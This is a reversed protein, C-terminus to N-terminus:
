GESMDPFFWRLLGDLLYAYTGVEAIIMPLIGIWPVTVHFVEPGHTMIFIGGLLGFPIMAYTTMNENNWDIGHFFFSAAALGILTLIGLVIGIAGSPANWILAIVILTSGISIRVKAAM